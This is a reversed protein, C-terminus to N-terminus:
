LVDGSNGVGSGSGNPTALMKKYELARTRFDVARGFAQEVEKRTGSRKRGVPRAEELREGDLRADEGIDRVINMYAFRQNLQHLYCNKDQINEQQISNRLIIHFLIM